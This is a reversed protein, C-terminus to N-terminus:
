FLAEEWERQLEQTDEDQEQPPAHCMWDAIIRYLNAKRSSTQSAFSRYLPLGRTAPNHHACSERVQTETRGPRREHSVICEYIRDEQPINVDAPRWGDPLFEVPATAEPDDPVHLWIVIHARELLDAIEQQTTQPTPACLFVSEEIHWYLGRMRNPAHHFSPAEVLESHDEGPGEPAERGPPLPYFFMPDCMLEQGLAHFYRDGIFPQLPLFLFLREDWELLPFTPTPVEYDFDFESEDVPLLETYVFAASIITSGLLTGWGAGAHFEYGFAFFAYGFLAGFVAHWVLTIVVSGWEELVVYAIIPHVVFSAILFGHALGALGNSLLGVLGGVALPLMVFFLSGWLVDWDREIRRQPAAEAEAEAELLAEEVVQEEFFDDELQLVSGEPDEQGPQWEDPQTDDAKPDSTGM